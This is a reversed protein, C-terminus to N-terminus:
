TLSRERYGDLRGSGSYDARIISNTSRLRSFARFMGAFWGYPTNGSRHCRSYIGDMLTHVGEHWGDQNRREQLVRTVYLSSWSGCLHLRTWFHKPYMNVSPGGRPCLGDDMAGVRRGTEARSHRVEAGM